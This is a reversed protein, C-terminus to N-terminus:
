DIRVGAKSSIQHWRKFEAALSRNLEEPSGTAIDLGLGTFREVMEPSSMAKVIQRNLLGVIAGPTGAPALVGYWNYVVFDTVGSEVFTPVAPLSPHRQVGAVALAKLKGARLFPMCPPTGSFAMPIQGAVVDNISPGGGKYPVHNLVLGTRFHLLEYMMHPLSGVGASGFSLKETASRPLALLEKLSSQRFSPNAVLLMPTTAVQAVARFDKIADYRPRAYTVTNIVHPSDALILTHGDGAARAVVETGLMSGAGPRNDVVFMQGLSEGLKQGLLRAITDSGGGAAYPVVFRVPRSPYPSEASSASVGSALAAMLLGAVTRM